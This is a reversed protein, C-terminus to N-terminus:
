RRKPSVYTESSFPCHTLVPAAPSLEELNTPRVQAGHYKKSSPDNAMVRILVWTQGNWHEMLQFQVKGGHDPAKAGLNFDELIMLDDVRQQRKLSMKALAKLAEPKCGPELQFAVPDTPRTAKSLYPNKLIFGGQSTKASPVKPSSSKKKPSSKRTSSPSPVGTELAAPTPASSAPKSVGM